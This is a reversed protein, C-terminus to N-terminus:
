GAAAQRQILFSGLVDAPGTHVEDHSACIRRLDANNRPDGFNGSIYGCLLTFAHQGGLETWLDELECAAEYHGQAVLVDVMEGYVYFPRRYESLGAVLTGVSARFLGRDPKEGVMFTSLTETASRVIIRGFRLADDAPSGLWALRMAVLNWREEDMVALMQANRLLGDAFFRAVGEVLTEDSDFLQM